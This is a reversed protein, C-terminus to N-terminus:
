TLVGSPGIRLRNFGARVRVTREKLYTKINNERRRKPRGLPKKWQPIGPSMKSLNLKEVM